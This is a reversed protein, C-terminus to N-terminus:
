RIRVRTNNGGFSRASQGLQPSAIFERPSRYGLAKHPHRSNYHEVWLPLSDLVTRTDPIPSIRVYNRKITCVFTTQGM